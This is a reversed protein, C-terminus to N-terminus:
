CCRSLDGLFRSCCRLSRSLLVELRRKAAGEFKSNFFFYGQSPVFKCLPQHLRSGTCEWREGMGLLLSEAEVSISSRLCFGFGSGGAVV